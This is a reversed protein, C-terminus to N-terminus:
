SPSGSLYLSLRFSLSVSFRCLWFLPCVSLRCVSLSQATSRRNILHRSKSSPTADRQRAIRRRSLRQNSDARLHREASTPLAQSLNARAREPVRHRRSKLVFSCSKLVFSRNRPLPFFPCFPQTAGPQFILSPLQNTFTRLLARITFLHIYNDGTHIRLVTTYIPYASGRELKRYM